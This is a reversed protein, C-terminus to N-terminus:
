VYRSIDSEQVPSVPVLAKLPLGSASPAVSSDEQSQRHDQAQQTSSPSKDVPRQTQQHQRSVAASLTPPAVRVINVPPPPSTTAINGTFRNVSGGVGGATTANIVAQMQQFAEMMGPPPPPTGAAHLLEQLKASQIALDDQSNPDTQINATNSHIQHEHNTQVAPLLKQQQQPPMPQPSPSNKRSPPPSDGWDHWENPMPQAPHWMINFFPFPVPM